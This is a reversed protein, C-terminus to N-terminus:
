FDVEGRPHLDAQSRCTMSKMPEPESHHCLLNRAISRCNCISLDDSSAINTDPSSPLSASRLTARVTTGGQGARKKGAARRRMLCTANRGTRLGELVVFDDGWLAVAVLCVVHYKTCTLAKAPTLNSYSCTRHLSAEKLRVVGCDASYPYPSQCTTIATYDQTSRPYVARSKM